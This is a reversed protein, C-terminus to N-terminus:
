KRNRNRQKRLEEWVSEDSDEDFDYRGLNKDRWEWFASDPDEVLVQELGLDYVADAFDDGGLSGHDQGFSDIEDMLMDRQGMRHAIKDRLEAALEDLLDRDQKDLKNAQRMLQASPHEELQELEQEIEKMRQWCHHWEKLLAEALQQDSYERSQLDPEQTLKQLRELDGANYAANIAMMMKTRYARDDEDLAFDPHFRRALQRYVRKLAGKQDATLSVPPEQKSTERYRFNGSSATGAEESSRWQKYLSGNSYDDDSLWDERLNILQKRLLQIEDELKELRHTLGELRSRVRFEFASIAVLRESLKAEAAVLLPKVEDLLAQLESIREGWEGDTQIVSQENMIRFKGKDAPFILKTILFIKPFLTSIVIFWM